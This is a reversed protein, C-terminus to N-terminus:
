SRAFIEVTREAKIPDDTIFCVCIDPRTTILQALTTTVYCSGMPQDDEWLTVLVERSTPHATMVRIM